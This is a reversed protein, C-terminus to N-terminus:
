VHVGAGLTYSVSALVRDSGGGAEEVVVDAVHDVYYRDDGGGGILTDVGGAGNLTDDGLGTEIINAGSTGTITDNGAGTIVNEFNFFREYGFNTVGTALNITYGGTFSSTDVTDNGVGGDLIEDVLGSSLGAFITDKGSDGFYQGEG